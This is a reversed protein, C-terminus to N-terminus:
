SQDSGVSLDVRFPKKVFKSMDKKRYLPWCIRELGERVRFGPTLVYGGMNLSGIREFFLYSRYVKKIYTLRNRHAITHPHNPGPRKESLAVIQEQLAIAEDFRAKFILNRVTNVMIELTWPHNNGLLAQSNEIYDLRLADDERPGIYGGIWTRREWRLRTLSMRALVSIEHDEGLAKTTIQIINENLRIAQKIRRQQRFIECLNWMIIITHIHYEGLAESFKRLLTEMLAAAKRRKGQTTYICAMFNMQSLITHDIEDSFTKQMEVVEKVLKEAMALKGQMYLARALTYKIEKVALHNDPLTRSVETFIDRALEEAKDLYGLNELIACYHGTKVIVIWHATGLVTRWDLIEREHVAQISTLQNQERYYQADTATSVHGRAYWLGFITCPNYCQNVSSKLVILQDELVKRMHSQVLFMEATEDAREVGFGMRYCFALQLCAEQYVSWIDNGLSEEALTKLCRFIQSRVRFDVEFLQPM